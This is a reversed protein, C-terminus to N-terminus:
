NDIYVKGTVISKDTRVSVVYYGKDLNTNLRTIQDGNLSQRILERGIMDYVTINGNLYQNKDNVIFISGGSSYVKLENKIPNNLDNLVDTFLIDFRYPDDSTASSFTFVPNIKLDQTTNLKKDIIQVGTKSSFTNLDNSILEYNGPPGVQFYIPVTTTGTSSKYNKIVVEVNDNTVTYLESFASGGRFLKFADTGRMYNPTADDIFHVAMEDMEFNQDSNTVYLHMTNTMQAADASKVLQVGPMFRRAANDLKFENGVVPANYAYVFFAQNSAIYNAMAGKGPSFGLTDHTSYNWYRYRQRSADWYWIGPDFTSPWNWGAGPLTSGTIEGLIISSPFPNGALIWGHDGPLSPLSVNWTLPVNTPFTNLPGYWAMSPQDPYSPQPFIELGEGAEVHGLYPDNVKGGSHLINLEDDCSNSFSSYWGGSVFPPDNRQSWNQLAGDWKRVYYGSPKIGSGYNNLDNLEHLVDGTSLCCPIDALDTNIPITTYHVNNYAFAPSKSPLYWEVWGIVQKDNFTQQIFESHGSLNSRLLLGKTKYYNVINGGYLTDIWKNLNGTNVADCSYYVAPEFVANEAPINSSPAKLWGNAGPMLIINVRFGTVNCHLECKDEVELAVVLCPMLGDLILVSADVSGKLTVKTGATGNKLIHLKDIHINDPVNTVTLTTGTQIVVEDNLAPAHGLSWNDATIWMKDGSTNTWANITGCGCALTVTLAATNIAGARSLGRGLLTTGALLNVAGNAIITGRFISNEGLDFQGNIQWYVNCLSASNILKVNSGLGTAFAGGIQFIFLADPDGQGDLILDGNLTTAAGQCYINPTLVQGGGLINGIGAGCTLGSLYSYATLVDTAAQVSVPDAVHIQGHLTGPPFGNFAGANTGVDGTVVSLAETNSFAGSATFLAFGSAAGLDPAQGFILHPILLLLSVKLVTFIQRKM